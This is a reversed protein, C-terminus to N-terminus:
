KEIAIDFIDKLDGKEVPLLKCQGVPLIRVLDDIPLGKLYEITNKSFNNKISYDVFDSKIKKSAKVVDLGSPLLTRVCISRKKVTEYPGVILLLKSAM